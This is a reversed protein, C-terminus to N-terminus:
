QGNKKRFDETPEYSRLKRVLCSSEQTWYIQARITKYFGCILKRPFRTYGLLDSDNLSKTLERFCLCHFSIDPMEKGTRVAPLNGHSVLCLSTRAFFTSIYDIESPHIPHLQGGRWFLPCLYDCKGLSAGSISLGRWAARLVYIWRRVTIRPAKQVVRISHGM